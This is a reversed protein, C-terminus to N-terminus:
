ESSISVQNDSERLGANLFDFNKLPQRKTKLVWCIELRSFDKKLEKPKSFTLRTSTSGTFTGLALTVDSSSPPVLSKSCAGFTVLSEEVFRGKGFDKFFFSKDGLKFFSVVKVVLISM